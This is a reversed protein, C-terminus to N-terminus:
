RTPFTNLIPVYFEKGKVIIGKRNGKLRPNSNEKLLEQYFKRMCVNIRALCFKELKKKAMFLLRKTTCSRRDVRRSELRVRDNYTIFQPLEMPHRGFIRPFCMEELDPIKHWSIPQKGEGPAIIKVRDIMEKHRDMLMVEEPFNDSIADEIPDIISAFTVSNEKDKEHENDNDVIFNLEENTMNEYLHFYKDDISIEYKRYLPMSILYQLAECVKAPRITEFMYNSKHKLKRKLQIQITAMEDFSSPLVTLMDNKEISINVVSGKAGLQPNLTFSELPRIQMFNIYPAVMREELDSLHKVSSPVEPFKLGNSTLLKPVKGKKVYSHCTTCMYISSYNLVNVCLDDWNPIAESKYATLSQPFFFGECCCCVQNPMCGRAELFELKM